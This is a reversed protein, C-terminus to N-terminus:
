LIENVEGWEYTIKMILALMLKEADISVDPDV